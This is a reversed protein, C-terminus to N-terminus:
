VSSDTKENWKNEDTLFAVAYALHLSPNRMRVVSNKGQTKNEYRIRM